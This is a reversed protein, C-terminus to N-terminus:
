RSSRGLEDARQQVRAAIALQAVGGLALLGMAAAGRGMGVAVVFAVLAAADVAFAAVILADPRRAARLAVVVVAFYIWAALAVALGLLMAATPGPSGYLHWLSAAGLAERPLVALLLLGIGTLVLYRVTADLVGPLRV